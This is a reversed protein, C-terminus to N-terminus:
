VKSIGGKINDESLYKEYELVANEIEQRSSSLPLLFDRVPATNFPNSLLNYQIEPGTESQVTLIPDPATMATRGESEAVMKTEINGILTLLGTTNSHIQEMLKYCSSDRYQNILSQNHIASISIYCGATTRTLIIVKNSHLNFTLISLYERFCNCSFGIVIFLFTRASIVEEKWTLWTYWPFSVFFIIMGSVMLLGALPWHQIKFFMGGAYCIMGIAGLIYVPKMSKNEMDWLKNCATGSCLFTNRFTSCSSLITGAGPWHQIKFLTGFIFLIGALFASIFLFLRRGTTLKKGSYELRPQYSYLHWILAGLTTM